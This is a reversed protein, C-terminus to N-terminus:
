QGVHFKGCFSRRYAQMDHGGGRTRRIALKAM